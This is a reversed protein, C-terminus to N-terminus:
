LLFHINKKAQSEPVLRVHKEHVFTSTDKGDSYGCIPAAASIPKRFSFGWQVSSFRLSPFTVVSFHLEFERQLVNRILVVNVSFIVPLLWLLHYM